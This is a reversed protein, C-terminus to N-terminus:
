EKDKEIENETKRERIIQIERENETDRKRM